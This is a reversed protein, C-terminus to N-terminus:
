MDTMTWGRWASLRAQQAAGHGRAALRGVKARNQISEVQELGAIHQDDSSAAV